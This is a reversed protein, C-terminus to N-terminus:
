LPVVEFGFSRKDLHPVSSGPGGEQPGDAAGAPRVAWEPCALQERAGQEGGVGSGPPGRCEGALGGVWTWAGHANAWSAM